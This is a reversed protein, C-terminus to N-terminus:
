NSRFTFASGEYSTIKPLSAMLRGFLPKSL